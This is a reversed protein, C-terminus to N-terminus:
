RGSLFKPRASKRAKQSLYEDSDSHRKRGGRQQNSITFIKSLRDNGTEDELTKKTEFSEKDTKGRFKEIKM